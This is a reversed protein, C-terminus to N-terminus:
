PVGFVKLHVKTCLAAFRLKLLDLFSDKDDEDMVLRFDSEDTFYLLVEPGSLSKVIYKLKKISITKRM